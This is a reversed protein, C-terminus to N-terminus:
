RTAVEDMPVNEDDTVNVFLHVERYANELSPNTPPQTRYLLFALRLHSGVMTPVVERREHVTKNSRVRLAFRDLRTQATITVTGNARDIRQLVVLVTYNAPKEGHNTAGVIVPQPEGHVLETPYKTAEPPGTSNPALLFLDTSATQSPTVADSVIIGGVVLVSVILLVSVATDIPSKAPVSPVVEDISDFPDQYREEPRLRARRYAALITAGITLGSLVSLVGWFVFGVPSLALLGGVIVVIAISLAVSLVVREIAGIGGSVPQSFEGSSNSGEPFLAAVLTYGPLFLVLLFAFPIRVPTERLGPFSMTVITGVVLAIAVAHDTAVQNRILNIRRRSGENM